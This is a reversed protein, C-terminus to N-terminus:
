QEPQENQRDRVQATFPLAWPGGADMRVYMVHVQPDMVRALDSGNLWVAASEAELRSGDGLPVAAERGTLNVTFLSYVTDSSKSAYSEGLPVLESRDVTYGTEELLERVADDEIDGGEYGGTIASLVQDFSWCPTMESKVLYEIRPSVRGPGTAPQVVRWPLVAVIRGQCRTERSFVYGDVGAAPERVVHLSVWSNHHLTEVEAMRVM